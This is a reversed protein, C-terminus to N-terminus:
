RRRNCHEEMEDFTMRYELISYGYKELKSCLDVYYNEIDELIPEFLKNIHRAFDHIVSILEQDFNSFTSM